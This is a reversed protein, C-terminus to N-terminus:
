INNSPIGELMFGVMSNMKQYLQISHCGSELSQHIIIEEVESKCQKRGTQQNYRPSKNM